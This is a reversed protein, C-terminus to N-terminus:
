RRGTDANHEGTERRSASSRAFKLAQDLPLPGKDIRAALTEGEIYEMV